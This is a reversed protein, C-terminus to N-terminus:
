EARVLAIEGRVIQDRLLNKAIKGIGTSPLVDLVAAASPRKFGKLGSRCHALLIDPTLATGERAVGVVVPTEGWRSDPIGVVAAAGVAPHHCAVAEIEAPAVNLGGTIILDKLRGTLYVRGDDDIRGMDGTRIAGDHTRGAETAAVDNYYGVMQAPSRVFLEGTAPDASVRCTPFAAGVTFPDGLLMRHPAVTAPVLETMGYFQYTAVGPLEAHWRQLVSPPMPESAFSVWRLQSLKALPAENVLRAMLTPVADFSTANLCADAVREVDFRPLVEISGGACLTPLVQEPIAAFFPLFAISRDQPSLPFAASLQLACHLLTSQSHLAGKPRGTSGSTPIVCAPTNPRLRPLKGFYPTAQETLERLRWRHPVGDFADALDDDVRGMVLATADVLDLQAQITAADLMPNIPVAVLGARLIGLFAVIYAAENAGVLAVRSGPELQAERLLVRAVGGARAWLEAYTRTRGDEVLAPRDSQAGVVAALWAVLTQPPTATM